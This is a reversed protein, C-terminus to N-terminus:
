FSYQLKLYYEKNTNYGFGLELNDKIKYSIDGGAILKFDEFGPILLSANLSYDKINVISKSLIIGYTKDFAYYGGAKIGLDKKKIIEVTNGAQLDGIVEEVKRHRTITIGSELSVLNGETDEYIVIKDEGTNILIKDPSAQFENIREEFEVRATEIKEQNVEPEKKLEIIEAKKSEYTPAEVKVTVKEKLIEGIVKKQIEALETSLKIIMGQNTKLIELTKVEEIKKADRWNQYLKYGQFSAFVFVGIVIIISIIKLITKM